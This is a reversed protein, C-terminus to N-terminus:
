LCRRDREGQLREILDEQDTFVADAFLYMLDYRDPEGPLLVYTMKGAGAAWGLELHGSKGCPLVLVVADSEQLHAYDLAFAHRAHHGRLAEAYTRGRRQEYEQWREDAHEGPSLWDDFVDFEEGRLEAALDMIDRNKLAGVLYVKM